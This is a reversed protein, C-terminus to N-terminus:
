RAIGQADMRDAISAAAAWMLAPMLANDIGGAATELLSGALAVGLANRWYPLGPFTAGYGLGLGGWRVLLTRAWHCLLLTLLHYAVFAASGEVTKEAGAFTFV